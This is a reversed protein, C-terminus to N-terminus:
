RKREAQLRGDRPLAEVRHLLGERLPERAKPSAVRRVPTWVAGKGLLAQLLSEEELRQLLPNQKACPLLNTCLEASSNSNPACRHSVRRAKRAPRRRRCFGRLVGWADAFTCLVLLWLCRRVRQRRAEARQAEVCM